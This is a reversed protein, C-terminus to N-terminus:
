YGGQKAADELYQHLARIAGKLTYKRILVKWPDGLSSPKEIFEAVVFNKGKKRHFLVELHPRAHTDFIVFRRVGDETKIASYSKVKANGISEYQIADSYLWLGM